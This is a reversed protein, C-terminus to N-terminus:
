ITSDIFYLVFSLFIFLLGVYVRREKRFFAEVIKRRTVVSGDIENASIIDSIDNILDILTKITKVYLTKVPLNVWPTTEDPNYNPNAKTQPYRTLFQNVKDIADKQLLPDDGISERGSTSKLDEYLKKFDALNAPVSDVTATKEARGIANGTADNTGDRTANIIPPLIVPLTKPTSSSSSSLDLNTSSALLSNRLLTAM